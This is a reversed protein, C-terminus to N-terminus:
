SCSSSSPRCCCRPRCRARAARDPRRRRRGAAAPHVGFAWPLSWAYYRYGSRQTEGLLLSGSTYSRCTSSRRASSGPGCSRTPTASRSGWWRPRAPSSWGSSRRGGRRPEFARPARGGDGAAAAHVRRQVQLRGRDRARRRRARLRAARGGRVIGAIGILSLLTPTLSPADNLALHGYHVPLFATALIAAALLGVWRDFLRRGAVYILRSRSRRSCRRRWGRSRGSRGPIRAGPTSSRAAALLPHAAACAAVWEILGSPNLQYDPDISGNDFFAVARPVFHSREDLNYAFPLGWRLGWVRLILAGLVLGAVALWWRRRREAPRCRAPAAEPAPM